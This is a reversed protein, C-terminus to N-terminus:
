PTANQQPTARHRQYWDCIATLPCQHCRPVDWVCVKQGHEIMNRHFNFLVHADPPYLDRLIRHAAEASTRAPFLGLRGSVRHIHTDVAQLPMAFCILLVLSATKPGVGPLSTLWAYAEDVPLDGLFDINAEDREEFIRTLVTQINPAKVEPFTVASIQRTLEDVPADRVAEWSGYHSWMADYAARENARNTRHSLMIAILAKMRDRDTNLEKEGYTALLRDYVERAKERLDLHINTAM